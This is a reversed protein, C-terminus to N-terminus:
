KPNKVLYWDPLSYEKDLLTMIKKMLKLMDPIVDICNQKQFLDPVAHLKHAANDCKVMASERIAGWLAHSYNSDYDYWIDFLEKEDVYESKQRINMQDFYRLDTDIFEEWRDENVLLELLDPNVHSNSDVTTERAKLLILKYKGIGYQQYEQWIKPKNESMKLLYKLMIFVEVMARISSRGAISNGMDKNVIECMIKYAFVVMTVFVNFKVDFLSREKNKHYLFELVDSTDNLYAELDVNSKEHNIFFMKCETPMGVGKWFMEIYASNPEDMGIEGARVLPRYSRMKEDDHSTIPYEQLAAIMDKMDKHFILKKQYIQNLLVLYRIDTADNSQHQFYKTLVDRITEIRRELSLECIYFSSRFVDHGDDMLVSTLPALVNKELRNNITRYIREQINHPLALIKSLKPKDLSEEFSSIDRLILAARKLGEDRGYHNHIFCLWIYEPLRSFTWSSFTMTSGMANNWPTIVKGSRVKHDKIKSHTM